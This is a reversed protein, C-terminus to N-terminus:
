KQTDYSTAKITPTITPTGTITGATPIPTVTANVSPFYCGTLTTTVADLYIHANEGWVNNNYFGLKISCLKSNGSGNFSWTNYAVWGGDEAPVNCDEHYYGYRRYVSGSQSFVSDITWTGSIQNGLSYSWFGINSGRWFHANNNDPKGTASSEFESTMRDNSIFNNLNFEGETIPICDPEPEEENYGIIGINDFFFVELGSSFLESWVIFKITVEDIKRDDGTSLLRDIHFVTKEPMNTLDVFNQIGYTNGDDLKLIYIILLGDTELESIDYDTYLYDFRVIVNKKSNNFVMTPSNGYIDPFPLVRLSCSSSDGSLDIGIRQPYFGNLLANNICVNSWTNEEIDTMQNNPSVLWSFLGIFSILNVLGIFSFKILM